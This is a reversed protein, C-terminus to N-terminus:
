HPPASGPPHAPLPGPAAHSAGEAPAPAPPAAAHSAGEPAPAPPAPAPPNGETVPAAPATAPPTPTAGAHLPHPNAQMCALWTSADWGGQKV